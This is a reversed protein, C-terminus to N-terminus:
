AHTKAVAAPEIGKGIIYLAQKLPWFFMPETLKSESDGEASTVNSKMQMFASQALDKLQAIVDASVKHGINSLTDTLEECSFVDVFKKYFDLVADQVNPTIEKQKLMREPNEDLYGYFTDVTLSIPNHYSLSILAGRATVEKPQEAYLVSINADKLGQNNLVQGAYHVVANVIKSIDDDSSSILKIYKSGMGTFSINSPTKAEAMHIGYAVYFITAAFHIIPLQMMERSGEVLDSFHTWDDNSFLYNVIDASSYAREYVAKVETAKDGLASLLKDKYFTVFGNAKQPQDAAVVGDNWLDNAAFFASFVHTDQPTTSPNVYLIDTTGGGIDINVYPQGYKMDTLFSYYPAVSETRYILEVECHTRQIASNISKKFNTLDGPRMAIPYTVVLTFKTSGGNMISKNKMMWIIQYFFMSIRQKAIGAGFTDWKINTRYDSSRSIEEGYNFGIDTNSFLELTMLTGAKECTATRLPFKVSGGIEAPVFERKLATAFAGFEGCGASSHLTALQAESANYVFTNVSAAGIPAHAIAAPTSACAIYTNTTGFDISFTLKQTADDPDKKEFIPIVLATAHNNTSTTVSVEIISFSGDMHLHSTTLSSGNIGRKSRVVGSEGVPKPLIKGVIKDHKGMEYCQVAIESVTSGVMVNYVNDASCDKGATNSELRYFPFVALDFTSSGDYCNIREISGESTQYSKHLKLSHGGQLPIELDVTVRNHDKDFNMQLMNTYRGQKDFLDEFKFYEFFCKKLPLLFAIPKKSGTYFRIRNLEYSVEIIKEELFDSTTLFPYPQDTEFGPLHRNEPSGLVPPIVDSGHQWKRGHLYTLNPDGHETLVLPIQTGPAIDVTPKLLYDTTNANIKGLHHDSTKLIIGGVDVRAGGKTELDKIGTPDTTNTAAANAVNQDYWVGNDGIYQFMQKLPDRNGQAVNNAHIYCLRQLYSRFGKDRRHLPTTQGAFLKNGNDGTFSWRNAQMISYLNASTYVLTIPSTGGIVEDKWKFLYLKTTGRLVGFNFASRLAKALNKHGPVNSKDLENCETQVNWTEINFDFEDGYKFIFELMDLAESVLDHYPTPAYQGLSNLAGIHGWQRNNQQMGNVERFAASFLFLRALPTPMSSGLKVLGSGREIAKDEISTSDIKDQLVGYNGSTNTVKSPSENTFYHRNTPM